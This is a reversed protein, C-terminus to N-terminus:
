PIDACLGRENLELYRNADDECANSIAVSDEASDLQAELDSKCTTAYDDRDAAGWVSWDGAAQWEGQSGTALCNEIYDATTDCYRDCPAACGTALALALCALFPLFPRLSSPM